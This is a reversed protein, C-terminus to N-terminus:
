SFFPFLPYLVDLLHGVWNSLYTCCQKFYLPRAVAFLFLLLAAATEKRHFALNQQSM